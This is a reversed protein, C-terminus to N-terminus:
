PPTPSERRQEPAFSPFVSTLPSIVCDGRGGSEQVSGSMHLHSGPVWIVRGCVQGSVQGRGRFMCVGLGEVCTRMGLVGLCM